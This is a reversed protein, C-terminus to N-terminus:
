LTIPVSITYVSPTTDMIPIGSSNQKMWKSSTHYLIVKNNTGDQLYMSWGYGGDNALYQSSTYPYTGSSYRIYYTGNNIYSLNYWTKASLYRSDTSPYKVYVDYPASASFQIVRDALNYNMYQNPRGKLAYSSDDIATRFKAKAENSKNLAQAEADALKTRGTTSTALQNNADTQAKVTGVNGSIASTQSQIAKVMGAM